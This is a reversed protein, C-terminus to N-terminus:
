PSVATHLIIGHKNRDKEHCVCCTCVAKWSLLGPDRVAGMSLEGSLSGLLDWPSGGPSQETKGRTVRPELYAKAVALSDWVAGRGRAQLNSFTSENNGKHNLM